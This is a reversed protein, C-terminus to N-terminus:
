KVARKNWGGVVDAYRRVFREVPFLTVGKPTWPRGTEEVKDMRRMRVAANREAKGAPTRDWTNQLHYMKQRIVNEMRQMRVDNDVPVCVALPHPWKWDMGCDGCFGLTAGPPGRYIYSGHRKREILKAKIVKDAAEAAISDAVHKHVFAALKTLEEAQAIIDLGAKAVELFTPEYAKWAALIRADTYHIMDADLRRVWAVDIQGTLDVDAAEETTM